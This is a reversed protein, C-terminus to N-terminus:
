PFYMGASTRRDVTATARVNGLLPAATYERRDVPACTEWNPDTQVVALLLVYVSGAYGIGRYVRHAYMM